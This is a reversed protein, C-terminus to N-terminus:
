ILGEDAFSFYNKETVILHDLLKIDISEAARKMKSTLQKDTESPVLTGSPHNHGLIMATANIELAKKLALRVDVLTGTIGGKSLQTLTIVKNSNNLYMIWFEEHALDAMGPLFCLYASESNVIRHRELEVGNGRRRGLELAATIAVAKAEGVGHFQMLQAISLRGLEQLNNSASALIRKSLQVASESRSGSSLLIAILEADSLAAKGKQLLKERPRDDINWNKISFSSPKEKM